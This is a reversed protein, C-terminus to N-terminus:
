FEGELLAGDTINFRLHKEVGDELFRVEVVDKKVYEASLVKTDSTKLTDQFVAMQEADYRDVNDSIFLLNGFIKNVKAIIKRQTMNLQMNYDRLLFVDPDNCFARGDLQRRFITNNVANKTTADERHTLYGHLTPKWDLCVDAGIRCFDVKGYCPALTVASM